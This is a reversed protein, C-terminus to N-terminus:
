GGNRISLNYIVMGIRSAMASALEKGASLSEDDLDSGQRFNVVLVGISRGAARIPMCLYSADSIEHPCKMGSEPGTYLHVQGSRLSWCDDPGFEEGPSPSDGWTAAVQYRGTEQDLIYLSGSDGRTLEGAYRSFAEYAEEALLCSQLLEDMQNLIVADRRRRDLESTAEALRAKTSSLESTKIGAEEELKGKVQLLQEEGHKRATIDLWMGVIYDEDGEPTRVLRLIDLFWKYSGDASRWRYEYEHFGRDFVKPIEEYAKPADDPHIHDIWFSSDGTLDEPQYGTFTAINGSVYTVGFDDEAKGTYFIIPLSELLLSFQEGTRRLTVAQEDREGRTRLASIGYSLDGALEGLLEVEEEDFADAEAAYINLSGYNGGNGSLPLSVTSYYGRRTADARWPSFSEDILIDRIVSPAGTRVAQGVPGRGFKTADDWTVKVSELFGQEYGASAVPRVAKGESEEAFGVWVFRYGGVEVVAKCIERLLDQEGEANTLAQSAAMTTRLARNVAQLREEALKKEGLELKLRQNLSELEGTRENVMQELGDKTRSLADEALKRETIDRSIGLVDEFAGQDDKVPVLSTSLWRAIGGLTAKNEVHLPVGEAFVKKLERHQVEAMEPPFVSDLTKGIFLEPTGGLKGAAFSNLYMVLGRRDVIFIFDQATEALTRYREESDVLAQEVQVREVIEIELERWRRMAFVSLAAALIALAVILEDYQFPSDKLELSAAEFSEHLDLVSIFVFAVAFVIFVFVLDRLVKLSKQRAREPANPEYIGHGV